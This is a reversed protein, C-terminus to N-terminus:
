MKTAVPDIQTLGFHNATSESFIALYIEIAKEYKELYEKKLCDPVTARKVHRLVDLIFNNDQSARRQRMPVAGRYRAASQTGTESIANDVSRRVTQVLHLSRVNETSPGLSHFEKGM